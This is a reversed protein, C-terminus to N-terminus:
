GCADNLNDMNLKYNAKNKTETDFPSKEKKDPNNQGLFQEKDKMENAFNVNNMYCENNERNEDTIFYIWVYTEYLGFRNSGRREKILVKKGDSSFDVVTLTSFFGEKLYPLATSILPYRTHEFISLDHLKEKNSLHGDLEILYVSSATQRTQPYYYVESYVANNFDPDSVFMSRVNKTEFIRTLDIERRGATTNYRKLVVPLEKPPLYKEYDSEAQTEERTRLDMKVNEAEEMWEQVTQVMPIKIEEEKDYKKKFPNSFAYVPETIFPLFAFILILFALGKLKM